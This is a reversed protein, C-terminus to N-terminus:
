IQIKGYRRKFNKNQTVIKVIEGYDVECSGRQYIYFHLGINELESLQVTHDYFVTFGCDLARRLYVDSKNESVMIKLGTLPQIKYLDDYSPNFVIYVDKNKYLNAMNTTYIFLSDDRGLYNKLLSSMYSDNSIICVKICAPKM